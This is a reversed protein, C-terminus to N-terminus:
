RKKLQPPSTVIKPKKFARYKYLKKPLTEAM